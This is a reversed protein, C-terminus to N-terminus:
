ISLVTDSSILTDNVHFVCFIDMSNSDIGKCKIDMGNSNRTITHVNKHNRAIIQVSKCITTLTQVHLQNSTHGKM